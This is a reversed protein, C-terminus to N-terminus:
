SDMQELISVRDCLLLFLHVDTWSVFHHTQRELLDARDGDVHPDTADDELVLELPIDIIWVVRGFVESLTYASIEAKTILKDQRDGM